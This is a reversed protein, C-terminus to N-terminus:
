PEYHNKFHRLYKQTMIPKHTEEEMVHQLNLKSFGGPLCLYIPSIMKWNDCVFTSTAVWCSLVDVAHVCGEAGSLKVIFPM